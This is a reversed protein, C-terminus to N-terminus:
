PQVNFIVVETSMWIRALSLKAPMNRLQVTEACVGDEAVANLEWNFLNYM